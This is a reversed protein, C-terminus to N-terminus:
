GGMQVGAWVCVQTSFIGAVIGAYSVNAPFASIRLCHQVKPPCPLYTDWAGDFVQRGRFTTTM